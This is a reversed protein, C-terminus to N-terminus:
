EERSPILGLQVLMRATSPSLVAEAARGTLEVAGKAARGPISEALEKGAVAFSTAAEPRTIAGVAVDGIGRGKLGEIFASSSYAKTAEILKSMRVFPKAISRIEPITKAAKFQNALRPSIANLSDIIQSTKFSDVIAGKTAKDIANAVEDATSLYIKAQQELVEASLGDASRSAKNLLGYGIRELTRQSDLADLPNIGTVSKTGGINKSLINNIGVQVNKLTKADLNVADDAAKGTATLADGIDINKGIKGVANRTIRSIQGEAGSVDDAIKALDDLDGTFGHKVMESAVEDPKLESAVRSSTKFISSFAKTSANKPVFVRGAGKAAGKLARGVPGLTKGAIRLTGATLLDFLGAIAPEKVLEVARESATEDQIKFADELTEGVGLGAATGVASGAAGTVIAGPGSPAGLISGAIGGLIAGATPAAKSVKKAVKQFGTPESKFDAQKLIFSAEERTLNPNREKAQQLLLRKDTPM